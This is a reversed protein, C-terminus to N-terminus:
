TREERERARESVGACKREGEGERGCPQVVSTLNHSTPFISAPPVFGKLGMPMSGVPSVRMRTICLDQGYGTGIARDPPPAHPLEALALTGYLILDWCRERDTERARGRESESAGERARRRERENM